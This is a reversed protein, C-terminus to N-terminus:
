SCAVSSWVNNCCYNNYRLGYYASCYCGTSPIAGNPCCPGLTEYDSGICCYGSTQTAGECVCPSTIQQGEPCEAATCGSGAKWLGIAEMLERLTPNSSDVKWRDIFASLETGDVCGDCPSADAKVTCAHPPTGSASYSVVNQRTDSVNMNGAMDNAYVRFQYTGNALGTVNRYCSLGQITMSYNAWSESHWNLICAGPGESLSVNVQIYNGSANTDNAPTPSAFNISPPTTDPPICQGQADCTYGGTCTGCSGGCGDNGCQKGACNPTCPGSSFEYAGIDYASGRPRPIGDYDATVLSSVDSAGTDIAPSGSQLHLDLNGPNIFLPDGTIANTVTIGSGSPVSTSGDPDYFLDYESHIFSEGSYYENAFFAQGSKGFFINNKSYIHRIADSNPNGFTMLMSTTSGTQYAVNNYIYIDKAGANMVLPPRTNTGGKFINNYIYVDTEYSYGDGIYIFDNQSGDHFYNDHIYINKTPNAADLNSSIFISGGRGDNTYPSDIENWGVYIYQATPVLNGLPNSELAQSKIYINHGMSDYGINYFYNGYIQIDHAATVWIWGSQSQSAPRMNVIANGVARNNTGHGMAMANGASTTISGDIKVKSITMNDVEPNYPSWYARGLLPRYGDVIPIEAPYGILAKKTGTEGYPGALYIYCGSTGQNDATNYTGGKVYCIYTGDGSPNHGPSFMYLDRWATAVTLGNNNNNGAPSIFYITSGSEITFPLSNSEVGNVTVKITTAGDAM